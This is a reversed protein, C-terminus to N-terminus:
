QKAKEKYTLYIVKIEHFLGNWFEEKYKFLNLYVELLSGKAQGLATSLYFPNATQTKNGATRSFCLALSYLEKDAVSAAAIFEM